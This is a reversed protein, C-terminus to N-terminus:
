RYFSGWVVDGNNTTWYPTDIPEGPGSYVPTGAESGDFNEVHSDIFLMNVYKDEHRDTDVSNISIFEVRTSPETMALTETPSPIIDANIQPQGGGSPPRPPYATTGNLVTNFAYDFSNGSGTFGPPGFKQRAEPCWWINENTYEDSLSGDYVDTYRPADIMEPLANYWMLPNPDDKASGGVEHEPKPLLAKNEVKFAELAIGWQKLNSRCAADRATRRATGLAPLLIAVLLAIISVVVLLEILTFGRRGRPRFTDTHIAPM